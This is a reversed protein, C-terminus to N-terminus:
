LVFFNSFHTIQIDSVEMKTEILTEDNYNKIQTFSSTTATASDHEQFMLSCM